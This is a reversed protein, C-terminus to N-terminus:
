RAARAMEIMPADPAQGAVDAFGLHTYLRRARNDARVFLSAPRGLADCVALWARLLLLGGGRGSEDPLVAIDVGHIQASGSWDVIIRGVPQGGRLLIRRMAKPYQAGFTTEQIHHQQLLMAPPLMNAMPANARYLAELFAADEAQEVRVSWSGASEAVAADFECASDVPTTM